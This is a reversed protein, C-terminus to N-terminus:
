GWTAIQVNETNNPSVTLNGEPDIHATNRVGMVIHAAHPGAHNRARTCRFGEDHFDNCYKYRNENKDYYGPEGKHIEQKVLPV